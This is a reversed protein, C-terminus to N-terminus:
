ICSKRLLRKLLRGIFYIPGYDWFDYAFIIYLRSLKMEGNQELMQMIKPNRLISTIRRYKASNKKCLEVVYRDDNWSLMAHHEAFKVFEKESYIVIDDKEQHTGDRKLWPLEKLMRATNIETNAAGEHIYSRTNYDSMLAELIYIKREAGFGFGTNINRIGEFFFFSKNKLLEKPLVSKLEVDTDLYIGGHDYVAKLRAYDSVFAWKKFEYAEKCWRNCSTNFNNENWEVIEYDPCFKRWSQICRQVLEPKEGRGFWCYHIIKPIM